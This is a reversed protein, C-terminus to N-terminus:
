NLSQLWGEIFKAVDQWGPEGCIFHSKDSFEKYDVRGASPKYRRAIKSTLAPSFITDKGGAIFLLPVHPKSFDVNSFSKLVTDRGIKRSEPVAVADFARDAQFDSITNFFAKKYWERTGMYASNGSFFNIAPWVIKVTSLPAIINKPPAGDISVGAVAKGMEVLKMVALGAMSHGIVIPKEPLTDILKAVNMVVDEFGTKTLDPHINKRLEAPDGSHGPNAPAHVTYGLEEFFKKWENWSTNNVFMGHILVITRSKTM